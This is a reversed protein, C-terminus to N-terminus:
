YGTGQGKLLQLMDDKTMRASIDSGELLADAMNKKTQHLELIKEEITGAAIIRYITVPKQQGIRYSRDSAQDEVAPNWWPDLHIVYDAATLNLGLGGAKLSILFLPATGQQFEKVLKIRKAPTTAGDLYQYETGAKDLQERVLALHSTFQSFVLARHHNAHLTEVMQMFQQMKSSDIKLKGEILRANCAALRLRTLEALTQMPSNIGEELSAIAQERINDYLAWEEKSLDVKVTIETKGPLQNLVETKTRRLIFPQIIRKLLKQQEKDKYKEVPTIFRENFQTFSGLLGPNAFQFLNWIESLHNQVPTGTLLLRFDGELNMAAKSMKTDRNKITHAEDLTITTWSRSSLAKEETILLGYTTLVVDFEAADTIAKAREDGAQNLVIANLSPAFRALEDRWNLLVSTPVIVLQPGRGARSLILTIAEVTKGLGMDDALCAGAGWYALRSMWLYAEKQYDRLDAQISKPIAYEQRDSDEIRRILDNYRKDAKLQMGDEGLNRLVFASFPSLRMVKGKHEVVDSIQQLQRRLADSLQVYENENLQIFNGRRSRLKELLEAMRIKETDNIRIEGDIEFWNKVGKASVIMDKGTIMRHTVRYRVGEPWELIVPLKKVANRSATDASSVASADPSTDSPAKGGDTDGHFLALVELCAEPPLEWHGNSEYEGYPVLPETVTELNEKEAKLNRKAQVQKGEINAAVFELGRGPGCYPPKDSFPKVFLKMRIYEGVPMMQAVITSDADVRAGNEAGETATVDLLDSMVTLESGLKNVVKKLGSEADRPLTPMKVLLDVMKQQRETLEVYNFRQNNEEVIYVNDNVCDNASINTKITFGDKTQTIAFQPTESVIEVKVDPNDERYVRKCGILAKFAKVYDLAYRNNYWICSIYRAVARDLNNQEPMGDRFTKMAIERGGSWNIGDKSTQLKPQIFPKRSVLYVIRRMAADGKPSRRNPVDPDNHEDCLVDLQELYGEWTRRPRLKPWINGIGMTRELKEIDGGVGCLEMYLYRLLVFKSGALKKDVYGVIEADMSEIYGFYYLILSLVMTEKLTSLSWNSNHLFEKGDYDMAMTAVFRSCEHHGSRSYLIRVLRDEHKVKPDDAYLALAYIMAPVGDDYCVFAADPDEMINVAAGYDGASMCKMARLCRSFENDGKMQKICRDINGNLAFKSYFVIEDHTKMDEDSLPRSGDFFLDNFVSFNKPVKKWGRLSCLADDLLSIPVNVPELMKLFDGYEEYNDIMYVVTDIVVTYHSRGMVSFNGIPKKVTVPRGAIYESLAVLFDRRAGDAPRGILLEKQSHKALRKKVEDPGMSRLTDILLSPWLVYKNGTKNVLSPIFLQRWDWYIRASTVRKYLYRSVIDSLEEYTYNCLALSMDELMRKGEVSLNDYSYRSIRNM